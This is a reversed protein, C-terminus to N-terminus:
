DRNGQRQHTYDQVSKATAFQIISYWDKSRQAQHDTSRTMMGVILLSFSAFRKQPTNSRRRVPVTRAM